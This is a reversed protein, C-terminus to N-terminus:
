IKHVYCQITLNKGGNVNELRWRTAKCKDKNHKLFLENLVQIRLRKENALLHNWVQDPFFIKVSLILVIIFHRM